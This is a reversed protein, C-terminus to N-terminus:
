FGLFSRPPFGFIGTPNLALTIASTRERIGEYSDRNANKRDSSAISIKSGSNSEVASPKFLWTDKTGIGTHEEHDCALLGLAHIDIVRRFRRSGVTVPRRFPALHIFCLIFVVWTRKHWEEITIFIRRGDLQPIAGIFMVPGRLFCLDLDTYNRSSIMDHTCRVPTYLINSSTSELTRSLTEEKTVVVEGSVYACVDCCGSTTRIPFLHLPQIGAANTVTPELADESLRSRVRSLSRNVVVSCPPTITSSDPSAGLRFAVKFFRM